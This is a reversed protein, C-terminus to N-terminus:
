GKRRKKKRKRKRKEGATPLLLLTFDQQIESYRKHPAVFFFIPVGTKSLCNSLHSISSFSIRLPIKRLIYKDFVAEEEGGALSCHSGRVFRKLSSQLLSSIFCTNTPSFHFSPVCLIRSASRESLWKPWSPLPPPPARKQLSPHYPTHTHTNPSGRLSSHVNHNIESHQHPKSRRQKLFVRSPHHSQQACMCMCM